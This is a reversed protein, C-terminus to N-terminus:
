VSHFDIYECKKTMIAAAIKEWLDSFVFGVFATENESPVKLLEARQFIGNLRTAGSM